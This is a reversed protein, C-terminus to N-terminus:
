RKFVQEGKIVLKFQNLRKEVDGIESMLTDYNTIKNPDDPHFSNAGFRYYKSWAQLLEGIEEILCDKVDGIYKYEEHM